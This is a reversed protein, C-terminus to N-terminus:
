LVNLADAMVQLIRNKTQEHQERANEVRKEIAYVDKYINPDDVSRKALEFAVTVREYEASTKDLNEKQQALEVQANTLMSTFSSDDETGIPNLVRLKETTERTTQIDRQLRDINSTLNQITIARPTLNDLQECMNKVAAIAPELVNHQKDDQLQRAQKMLHIESQLKANEKLYNGNECLIDNLSSVMLQSELLKERVKLSELAGDLENDIKELASANTQIRQLDTQLKEMQKTTDLKISTQKKIETKYLDIQERNSAIEEQYFHIENTVKQLDARLAADEKQLAEISGMTRKFLLLCDALQHLHMLREEQNSVTLLWLGYHGEDAEADDNECDAITHLFNLFCAAAQLRDISAQQQTAFFDGFYTSTLEFALDQLKDTKEIDIWTYKKKSDPLLQRIKDMLQQERSSAMTKRL